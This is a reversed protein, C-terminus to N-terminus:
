DVKTMLISVSEQDIEFTHMEQVTEEVFECSMSLIENCVYDSLKIIADSIEKNASFKVNIRDTVQLGINKRLNQMRNIFERAIGEQKLEEDIETDLAVTLSGSNAILWGEMDQTLVDVDDLTIEIHNDEITLTYAQEQLLARIQNEDMASIVNAINQTQKGFRKGLAKFNAKITRKVVGAEENVYEVLKINLEDKIINEIGQIDRRQQPSIVPILIRKLPQRTKIKSKERLSRGLFVIKQALSMRRELDADICAQDGKSILRMHISPEEQETRLKGYIVEPLFPAAPAMMSLIDILVKRLTQYAAIKDNDKEGKWFRRRNRRVYWNSVDNIMFEQVLRAARFVDYSEMYQHYQKLVSHTKSIIWRDIEPCEELPINEEMGNIGDINAYLCYFSYTNTLTRFFDAIVTKAIDSENFLTPRWPPNNVMFYWRVADAGYTDMMLFPDVTNGRSKSMKLGNKDLVLENVIINKFAPKEFLASAINHLTYFWGRTQDIGEAIFDGPFQSEFLEKNEFPYHFQAFPVCGSDFWVDIVESTRRYTKGNKKFIVNDVFPRHLDIPLPADKVPVTNGDPLLYEGEMLEAISGIAFKDEKDESIWIPLPTGWYRDRSLSWDKVEELWNGFRGTGIEQPQWRITKNLDIMTQKYSPSKIFWSDRAYYMVPNDTRWCHPYSHVYDFSSKYIKGAQKLAIIIDKDAGEEVRDAYKFTKIARGAFDTIIDTFHGNPTVPQLVPLNFTKSLEFDDVGFAPSIHVIGTGDETSVFTGPLITLAQPHAIKDIHCYPFIQEYATGILQEGKCRAIISPEEGLVSKLSDAIIFRETNGEASEKEIIVYDIDKGVALAVNSFLTWPTTTWVLVHAGVAESVSSELVKLKLFVSPDKVERYGLSLEHSSLPTEITPSQPVVKYGKYILGKDFFTKLAWWVSEVYENTCTIYPSEMDVWYGMRKTFEGWGMDREINSYVFDRCAANFKDIGMVEIESKNVLGLQKEVAIEVPLGHTDWGAQRRVYHGTMTKYRCILDKDTRAMLHHIGPNGNVTPPGEFFSFVPANERAILSKEFINHEEWFALIEKELDPYHLKEPLPQYM